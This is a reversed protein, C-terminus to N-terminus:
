ASRRAALYANKTERLKQARLLDYKSPQIKCYLGNWTFEEAGRLYPYIQTEMYEGTVTERRRTHEQVWHKLASRRNEGTPVDRFKFVTKASIPDTPFSVAPLKARNFGIHVSWDYEATIAASKHLWPNRQGADDCIQPPSVEFPVGVTYWAGRFFQQYERDAQYTGDNFLHCNSCEIVESSYLRFLGRVDRLPVKRIRQMSFLYTKGAPIHLKEHEDGYYMAMCYDWSQLPLTRLEPDEDSIFLRDYSTTGQLSEYLWSADAGDFHSLPLKNFEACGRAVHKDIFDSLCRWDDINESLSLYTLINDIAEARDRHVNRGAQKLPLIM